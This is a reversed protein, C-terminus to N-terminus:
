AFIEDIWGCTEQALRLRDNVQVHADAGTAADLAVFSKRTSRINEHWAKAQAAFVPSDDTGLISLIPLTIM